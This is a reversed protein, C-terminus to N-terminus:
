AQAHVTMVPCPATRVVREAVSGLLAHSIGRRGHTGVVVLDAGLESAANTLENWPPGRRLQTDVQAGARRSEEVIEDLAARAASQIAGELQV